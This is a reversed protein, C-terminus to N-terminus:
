GWPGKRRRPPREDPDPPPPPSWPGPQARGDFREVPAPQWYAVGRKKFLPLLAMGAVFGAVHAWFAVGGEGSPSLAASVFQIAFWIGLVVAAPVAFVRFIPIPLPLFLVRVRAYPYLLLYAGLVGSIAGSAGVMPISSAPELLAHGLAAAVGTLCYFVLFRLRGMAAEVNDGFIYLFLMNGALHAMGGHLFQSSVLTFEPALFAQRPGSSGWIHAPVAGYTAFLRDIGAETLSIQWLFVLVCAAILGWTVVPSTRVPNDDSIPIM